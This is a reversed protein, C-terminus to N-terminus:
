PAAEDRRGSRRLAPGARGLDGLRLIQRGLEQGHDERLHAAGAQDLGHAAALAAVPQRPRRLLDAIALDDPQGAAREAQQGAGAPEGVLLALVADGLVFAPEVPRHQQDAVLGRPDEVAEGEGVLDLEVGGTSDSVAHRCAVDGHDAGARRARELREVQQALADVADGQDLALARGAAADGVARAPGLMQEVDGGPPHADIGVIGIM